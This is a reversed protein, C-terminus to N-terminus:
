EAKGPRRIVRAQERQQVKAVGRASGAVIADVLARSIRYDGDGIRHAELDGREIMRRVTRRDYGLLKAARTVGYWGRAAVAITTMTVIAGATRMATM